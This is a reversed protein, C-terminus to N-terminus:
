NVEKSETPAHLPGTSMVLSTALEVSARSQPFSGVFHTSYKSASFPSPPVDRILQRGLIKDRKEVDDLPILSPLILALNMTMHCTGLTCPVM